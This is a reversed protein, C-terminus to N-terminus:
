RRRRTTTTETTTETTALLRPSPIEYRTPSRIFRNRGTPAHTRAHTTSTGEIAQACADSAPTTFSADPATSGPAVTSAELGTRMSFTRVTVVSLVPWYRIM